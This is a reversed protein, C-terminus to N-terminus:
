LGGSPSSDAPVVRQILGLFVRCGQLSVRYPKYLSKPVCLVNTVVVSFLVPRGCTLLRPPAPGCAEQSPSGGEPEVSAATM